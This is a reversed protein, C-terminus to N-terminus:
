SGATSMSLDHLNRCPLSLPHVTEECLNYTQQERELAQCGLKLRSGPGEHSHCIPASALTGSDLEIEM